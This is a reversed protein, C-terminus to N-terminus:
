ANYIIKLHFSKKFLKSIVKFIQTIANTTYKVYEKPPIYIDEENPIQKKLSNIHVGLEKLDESINPDPLNNVVLKITDIIKFAVEGIPTPCKDFQEETINLLTVEIKLWFYLLSFFIVKLTAKDKLLKFIAREIEAKVILAQRDIM